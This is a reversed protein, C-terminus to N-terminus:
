WEVAESETGRVPAQIIAARVEVPGCRGSAYCCHWVHQKSKKLIDDKFPSIWEKPGEQARAVFHFEGFDARM